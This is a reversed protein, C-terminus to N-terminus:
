LPPNQLFDLTSILWRRNPDFHAPRLTSLMRRGRPKCLAKPLLWGDTSKREPGPQM